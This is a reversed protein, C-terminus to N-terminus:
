QLLRMPSLVAQFTFLPIWLSTHCGCRRLVDQVDHQLCGLIGRSQGEPPFCSHGRYRSLRLVYQIISSPPLSHLGKRSKSELVNYDFNAGLCALM